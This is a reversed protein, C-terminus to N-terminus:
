ARSIFAAYLCWGAALPLAVWRAITAVRARRALRGSLWTAYAAVLAMTLAAGFLLSVWPSASLHRYAYVSARVYVLFPLVTVATVKLLAIVASTLVAIAPTERRRSKKESRPHPLPPLAKEVEQRLEALRAEATKPAM